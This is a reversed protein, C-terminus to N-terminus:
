HIYALAIRICVCLRTKTGDGQRERKEREEHAHQEAGAAGIPQCQSPDIRVIKTRSDSRAGRESQEEAVMRPRGEGRIDSMTRTCPLEVIFISAVYCLLRPRKLFEGKTRIHM